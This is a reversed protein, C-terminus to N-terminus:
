RLSLSRGLDCGPTLVVFDLAPFLIPFIPLRYCMLYEEEHIVWPPRDQDPGSGLAGGGGGVAGLVTACGEPDCM